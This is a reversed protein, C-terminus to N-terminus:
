ADDRLTVELMPLTQGRLEHTTDNLFQAQGDTVWTHCVFPKGTEEATGETKVSPKLTPAVVSGNWTWAQAEKRSGRLIVPLTLHGSPGPFHLTVHTAEAIECGVYGRGPISKVPRAKM